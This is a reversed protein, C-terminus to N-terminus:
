TYRSGALNGGAAAAGLDEAGPVVTAVADRAQVVNDTYCTGNFCFRDLLSLTAGGGGPGPPGLSTTANPMSARVAAVIGIGARNDM